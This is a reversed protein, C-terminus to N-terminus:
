EMEVVPDGHLFYRSVAVQTWLFLMVQLQGWQERSNLFLSRHREQERGSRVSWKFSLDGLITSAKLAQIALACFNPVTTTLGTLVEIWNFDPAVKEDM